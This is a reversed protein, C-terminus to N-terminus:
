AVDRREEGYRYRGVHAIRFRVDALSPLSASSAQLCEYKVATCCCPIRFHIIDLTLRSPASMSYSSICILDENWFLIAHSPAQVRSADQLM